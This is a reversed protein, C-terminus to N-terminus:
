KRCSIHDLKDLKLGTAENVSNLELKPSLFRVEEVEFLLRQQVPNQLKSGDLLRIRELICPICFEVGGIMGLSCSLLSLRRIYYLVRNNRKKLANVIKM